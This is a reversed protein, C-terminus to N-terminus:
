VPHCAIFCARVDDNCSAIMRVQLKIAFFDMYMKTFAAICDLCSVLKLDIPSVTLSVSYSM